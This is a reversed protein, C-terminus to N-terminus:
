TPLLHSVCSASFQYVFYFETESGLISPRFLFPKIPMVRGVSNIKILKDVFFLYFLFLFIFLNKESEKGTPLHKRLHIMM